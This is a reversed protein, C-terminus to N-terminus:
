RAGEAGVDRGDAVVATFRAQAEAVDAQERLWKMADEHSWQEPMTRAAWRLAEARAADMEAFAARWARSWVAETACAIRDDVGQSPKSAERAAAYVERPIPPLDRIEDSM